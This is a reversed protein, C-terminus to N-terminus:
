HQCESGNPLMTGCREPRRSMPCENFLHEATELNRICLPCFYDNPWERRLLRDATWIRRQLMLWAFVKIKPPAWVGWIIKPFTSETEGAFQIDYASRASYKGNPELTWRIEDKEQSQLNLHQADVLSWLAFYDRLLELNLQYAIDRIWMGNEIAQAVMRNKRRSHKFLRPFLSAPPMGQLWSSTWFRAKRGNRVTVRTAAAFLARDTDDVPLEM